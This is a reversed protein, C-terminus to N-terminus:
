KKYEHYRNILGVIQNQMSHIKNLEELLQAKTKNITKIRNTISNPRMHDKMMTKHFHMYPKTVCDTQYSQYRAAMAAPPREKSKNNESTEINNELQGENQM